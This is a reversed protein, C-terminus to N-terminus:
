RRRRRRDQIKRVLHFRRPLRARPRRFRPPTNKVSTGACFFFNSITCFYLCLPRFHYAHHTSCLSCDLLKREYSLSLFIRYSSICLLVCVQYISKHKNNASEKKSSKSRIEFHLKSKKKKPRFVNLFIRFLLRFGFIHARESLFQSSTCRVHVWSRKGRVETEICLSYM